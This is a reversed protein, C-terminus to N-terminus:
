GGPIDSPGTFHQGRVGLVPGLEGHDHTIVIDRYNVPGQAGSASVYNAGLDRSVIAHLEAAPIEDPQAGGFLPEVACDCAPHIPSLDGRSYWRTSALVCLACSHAGVLVRRYGTVRGDHQMVVQAAKTKAMQLDTAALSAARRGGAAVAAPFDKGQAIDTWVQVYPRRYVEAPDVGRLTSLVDASVGIPASSGGATSAIMHALYASTLSAMTQQAAQVAPVTQAVFAAAAADRYDGQGAYSAAVFGLLRARLASTAALYAALMAASTNPATM